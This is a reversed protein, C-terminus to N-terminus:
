KTAEYQVKYIDKISNKALRYMELFKDESITSKEGTCQIEIIDGKNNFIFNADADANSDENYDLDLLIKEGFIGCSIATVCFNLPNTKIINEKKLRNVALSLAIWSGNIATTRTGGDASLVDCDVKILINELLTLDISNRLSRGILRQIEQSRGSLKGKNIDRENRTNTSTPLMSYEATLWGKGSGKLWRPVRYEISVSCIVKTNGFEILCSSFANKMFNKTVIINRLQNNERQSRM